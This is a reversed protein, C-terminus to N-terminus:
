FAEVEEYGGGVVHGKVALDANFAAVKTQYDVDHVVGGVPSKIAGDM